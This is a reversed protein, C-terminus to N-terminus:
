EVHVHLEAAEFAKSCPKVVCSVEGRRSMGPRWTSAVNGTLGPVGALSWRLFWKIQSPPSCCSWPVLMCVDIHLSRADVM